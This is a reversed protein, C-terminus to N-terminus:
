RHPESHTPLPPPRGREGHPRVREAGGARVAPGERGLLCRLRPRKPTADEGGNRLVGFFVLGNRWILFAELGVLQTCVRM